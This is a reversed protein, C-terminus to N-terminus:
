HRPEIEACKGIREGTRLYSGTTMEFLVPKLLEYDIRGSNDLINEDAYTNSIQCIFNDHAETEYNDVVRCEMVLPSMDIIPTGAEGLLWSFVGAKEENTVSPKCLADAKPLLAENVINASFRGSAKIGEAAQQSKRLSVIFRDTGILGVHETFLWNVKHNAMTGIIVALTPYLASTRGINRKM